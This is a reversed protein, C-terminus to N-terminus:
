SLRALILLAKFSPYENSVAEQIAAKNFRDIAALYNEESAEGKFLVECKVADKLQLIAESPLVQGNRGVIHLQSGM